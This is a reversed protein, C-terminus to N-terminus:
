KLKLLTIERSAVAYIGEAAPVLRTSNDVFPETDPFVQEVHTKGHAAAIRAIGEDTAAYLSKGSAFRGRIGHALWSDEDNAASDAAILQGTHDIVYCRNILKGNEQLSMMLWAYQDSMVATADILQGAVDTVPVRDNIGPGTTNFLFVRTLDGAQYFGVGFRNGAWILSRGQLIDGVYSSGYKGSRLLQGGNTWFYNDANADFITLKGVTDATVQEIAQGTIAVLRDRKGFLTTDGSIRYRMEPDLSGAVVERNDERFFRGNEHYLIRLKGHQNVAQLIQGRTVFTRTATVSGRRVVTQVVAGPAACVPCSPRAHGTGCNKCVTWRLGDLLKMPFDGRADKHYTREFHDLLEDPLYAFPVAPKPYVVEPSFVTIRALVRDDHQLKKGASPKHVGGYPNVYLLSQFLMVEYAYWDSLASHPRALMLKGPSCLLPDVFRSTFTRCYFGGFQMSDADVLYTQNAGDFLVNLDNFDGIVVGAQHVKAVLEHLSRFIGVVANTDIGSRERWTRDGLRLLVEETDMYNMAYGAIPGGSGAYALEIPAIVQPPLKKPFAALKKSYEALRQTAGAQAEPNGIYDPDNPQKYLKLVQGKGINYIDAEGGKGIVKNPSLQLRRGNIYVSPM